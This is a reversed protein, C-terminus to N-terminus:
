PTLSLLEARRLTNRFMSPLPGMVLWQEQPEVAETGTVETGAVKKLKAEKTEKTKKSSKPRKTRAPSMSRSPIHPQSSTGTATPSRFPTRTKTPWPSLTTDRKASKLVKSSLHDVNRRMEMNEKQKHIMDQVVAKEYDLDLKLRDRSDLLKQITRHDKEAVEKLSIIEDELVSNEKLSFQLEEELESIVQLLRENEVKYELNEKEPTTKSSSAERGFSEFKQFGFDEYQDLEDKLEKIIEEREKLKRLLVNIRVSTSDQMSATEEEVEFFQKYMGRIVAIADALQQNFSKRMNDEKQQYHKEIAFMRDRLFSFLKLSEEKLRDEFTLRLLDKIFGFDVQISKIIQPQVPVARHLGHAGGPGQPEGGDRARRGLEGDSGPSGAAGHAGASGGARPTPAWIAADTAM